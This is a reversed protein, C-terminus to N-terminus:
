NRVGFVPRGDYDPEVIQDINTFVARGDELGVKMTDTSVIRHLRDGVTMSYHVEAMVSASQGDPEVGIASMTRNTGLTDGASFGRKTSELYESYDGRVTDTTGTLKFYTVYKFKKSLCATVGAIDENTQAADWKRLLEEVQAETLTSPEKKACASSALLCLLAALACLSKKASSSNRPFM